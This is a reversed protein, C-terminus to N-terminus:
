PESIVPWSSLRGLSNALRLRSLYWNSEATIRSQKAAVFSSQASLLELMSGVGAKYRGQAIAFSRSAHELLDEALPLNKTETQVLQFNSWVALAIKKSTSALEAAQSAVQAEAVKIRHSRSLGELLPIKLQLGISNSKSLTERQSTQDIQSAAGVVSLTPLGEARTQLVKEKAAELQSKAALLTPHTETAADVLDDVSGLFRQYDSKRNVMAVKLSATVKVGIANAFKGEATKLAGAANSANLSAKTYETRAQLMDALTGAGAQYKGDAVTFTHKTIQESERAAEYNAQATILGYYSEAVSLVVDNITSSHTALAANLLAKASDVSASRYGFDFLLWSLNLGNSHTTTDVDYSLLSISRVEASEKGKSVSSTLNLNPLYLARAVGVQAAQAKITAWSLRSEPANCLAIDIAAELTLILDDTPLSPCEIGSPIQSASAGGPLQM